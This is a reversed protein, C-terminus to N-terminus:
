GYIEALKVDIFPGVLREIRTAVVGPADPGSAVYSVTLRVLGDALVDADTIPWHGAILNALRETLSDLILGRQTTFLSLLEESGTARAVVLPHQEVLELFMEVATVLATHPDDRHRTVVAAVGDVFRDAERAAYAAAVDRRSGFTNYVTQRSVGAASGIDAM